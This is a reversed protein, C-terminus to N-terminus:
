PALVAARLSADVEPRRGFWREFGPVGQHLLMGLGDIAVLGRARAALVFPTPEAGYVIDTVLAAASVAALDLPVAEADEMGVSTTNVLTAVDGAASSAEHWDVPRLRAGFHDRLAEARVRTRNAVRVEPCGEALLASVIARAAGGAGLVLAPGAAAEWAPAEQRLNAIFGYADTNDAHIRGGPGFTLTNAAGIERAQSTAETALALAAEKHPITVNVGRFGLRPLSRLGEALDEPSLGIPIYHGAIGYRALWHGHLRPSLSHGIPWGVVGALPPAASM